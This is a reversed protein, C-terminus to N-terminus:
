FDVKLSVPKDGLEFGKIDLFKKENLLEDPVTFKLALPRCTTGLQGTRGDKARFSLYSALIPKTCSSIELYEYSEPNLRKDGVLLSFVSRESDSAQAFYTSQPEGEFTLMVALLSAPAGQEKPVETVTMATGIGLDIRQNLAYSGGESYQTTPTAAPPNQAGSELARLSEKQAASIPLAQSLVFLLVLFKATKMEEDEEADGKHM